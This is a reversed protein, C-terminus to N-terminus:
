FKLHFIQQFFPTTTIIMQLLLTLIVGFILLKNIRLLSQGRIVFALVMHSFVLLNFLITRAHVESLSKLLSSYVFLLLMTIGFGITIIVLMRNGTLIPIKPNRPHQNILKPNKNDTALALAPLGDTVLNIWLIQTPLLPSPLGAISSFFVLAIESLNGALLYTIAKAINQYIVRGEEVAKILTAFNDDSLVIDSAEKAVDTGSEGMAVGVDAKKLALADNVGDGTVGVIYGQKQLLTALRLKDEPKTRAFISTKLILQSLEGDSIKELDEGTLIDEDKEILGIERGIALATLENDGTVMITRIGANKAQEISRVVEPRPPDNIGIIGLFELGQELEHRKRTHAQDDIKTGFAVVRLGEKAFAAFHSEIAQKEPQSLNSAALVAEPAGRVFVYKKGNKEWVTTIMKSRADFVHEDIIAGKKIEEDIAPDQQRAFTLLAGDTRDGAIDFAGGKGKQIVSATNGLLAAFLINKLQEKQRAWVRKVRMRNQTLTGTKDVLIVQVAGLTEVAPMSRVIAKQRAMRNTGIALAVTIVAPLGEPIAAVGISVAVLIVPILSGGKVIGLPILLLATILVLLSLFKGLTDLQKQLPTKEPKITALTQAIQGFHTNLGTKEVVMRGKGKTVLTGFFLQDGKQKAVPLSEGTLLSEDVEVSFSQSLRCDAAIRDGESFVIIDRPVLLNTPLEQEIGDRLVRVLPIAYSKLKELAKEARYEQVFGFIGNLLIIAFIFFADVIDHLFYSFFAALLLVVNIFSPFQSLFLRIASFSEKTPIENPGIQDFISQAQATSLGKEM